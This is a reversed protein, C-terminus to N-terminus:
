LRAAVATVDPPVTLGAVQGDEVVTMREVKV